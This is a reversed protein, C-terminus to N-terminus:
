KSYAGFLATRLLGQFKWYNQPVPDKAKVNKTFYPVLTMSVTSQATQDDGYFFCLARMELM